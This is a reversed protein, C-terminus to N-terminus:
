IHILSLAQSVGPAVSRLLARQSLIERTREAQRKLGNIRFRQRDIRTEYESIDRELSEYGKKLADYSNYQHMLKDVFYVPLVDVLSQGFAHSPLPQILSLFEELNKPMGGEWHDFSPKIGIIGAVDKVFSNCNRTFAQWSSTGDHKSRFQKSYVKARIYQNETM